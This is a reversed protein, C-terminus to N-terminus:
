IRSAHWLIYLRGVEKCLLQLSPSSSEQAESGTGLAETEVM